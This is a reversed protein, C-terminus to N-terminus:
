TIRLDAHAAVMKIGCALSEFSLRWAFINPVCNGGFMLVAMIDFAGICMILVLAFQTMNQHCKVFTDTLQPFFPEPSLIPCPYTETHYVTGRWCVM